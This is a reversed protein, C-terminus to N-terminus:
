IKRVKELSDLIKGYKLISEVMWDYGSFGKSKKKFKNAEYSQMSSVSVMAGWGDGFDHYFSKGALEEEKKKSARVVKCHFEDEGSWHGNWSGVNPMTLVFVLM